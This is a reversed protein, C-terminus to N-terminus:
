LSTSPRPRHRARRAVFYRILRPVGLIAAATILSSTAALAVEHGFLSRVFSYFLLVPTSVVVLLARGIMAILEM